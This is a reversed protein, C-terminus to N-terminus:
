CMCRDGDVSTKKRRRRLHWDKIWFKLGGEDELENGIVSECDGINAGIAGNKSETEETITPSIEIGIGVWVDTWLVLGVRGVEFVKCAGNIYAEEGKFM